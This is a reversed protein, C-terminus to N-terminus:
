LRRAAVWQAWEPTDPLPPTANERKYRLWEKWDPGSYPWKQMEICWRLLEPDLFARTRQERTLCRPVKDKADDILAQTTLFVRWIRATIGDSTLVRQGDPSVRQSNPSLFVTPRDRDGQQLVAVQKGTQTEWIWATGGEYALVRQGDPSFVASHV